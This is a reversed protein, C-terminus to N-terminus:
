PVIFRVAESFGNFTLSAAKKEVQSRPTKRFGSTGRSSRLALIFAQYFCMKLLETVAVGAGVGSVISTDPDTEDRHTRLPSTSPETCEATQGRATEEALIVGGLNLVEEKANRGM